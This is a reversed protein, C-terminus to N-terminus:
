TSPRETLHLHQRQVHSSEAVVGPVKPYVVRVKSIGLM